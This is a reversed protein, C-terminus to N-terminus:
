ADKMGDILRVRMLGREPEIALVFEKVGPIMYERGHHEVVYVDHGPLKLVDRVRGAEEGTETVVALGIVQHVYHRGEPLPIRQSPEVFLYEGVIAEAGTRDEVGAIQLRVGRPEVVAGVVKVTRTEDPSPGLRVTRLKRFREPLDTLPQVVLEGRIGFAKVVIGIALLEQDV